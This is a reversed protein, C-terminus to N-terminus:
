AEALAPRWVALVFVNGGILVAAALYTLWRSVVEGPSPRAAPTTSEAPGAAPAAQGVAFPFAGETVHADVASTVKWSVTYVGEPIPRLTLTLRTPDGADVRADRNDVRAGGGDFVQAGSLAPELAESFTLQVYAPARDLAANAEPSSGVLVAHALAPTATLAVAACVLLLSLLPRAKMPLNTPPARRAPARRAGRM